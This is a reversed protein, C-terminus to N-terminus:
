KISTKNSNSVARVCLLYVVLNHGHVSQQPREHGDQLVAPDPILRVNDDDRVMALYM